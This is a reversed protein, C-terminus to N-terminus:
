WSDRDYEEPWALVHDSPTFQEIDFFVHCARQVEVKDSDQHQIATWAFPADIHTAKDQLWVDLPHHPSEQQWYLEECKWVPRYQAFVHSQPKRDALVTLGKGKAADRSVSHGVALGGDRLVADRIWSLGQLQIERGLLNLYPPDSWVREQEDTKPEPGYTNDLWHRPSNAAFGDLSDCGLKELASPLLEGSDLSAVDRFSEFPVVRIEDV